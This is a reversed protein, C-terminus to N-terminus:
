GVTVAGEKTTASTRIASREHNFAVGSRGQTFDPRLLVFKGGPQFDFQQRTLGQGLAAVDRRRNNRMQSLVGPKINAAHLFNLGLDFVVHHGKDGRHSLADAFLSAIQMETQGRRIHNIGAKGHLQTLRRIHNQGIQIGQEGHKPPPRLFMLVRDHDAAAVAHMGLRNGEAEFDGVPEGLHFAILGAQLLGAALNRDAFDRARDAGIGIDIRRDFRSNTRAQPEYRFGNGGLHDRAVPVGSKERGQRHDAAREVPNRGLQTMQLAGLDKLDLLRKGGALLARRGHRMLAIRPLQFVHAAQGAQQAAVRQRGQLVHGQPMLPIDAVGRDFPHDARVRSRQEVKHQGPQGRDHVPQHNMGLPHLGIHGYESFRNIGLMQEQGQDALANGAFLGIAPHLAVGHLNPLM